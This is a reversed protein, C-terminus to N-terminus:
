EGVLVGRGVTFGEGFAETSESEALDNACACPAALDPQRRAVHEDIASDSGRRLHADVSRLPLPQDFAMADIRVDDDVVLRVRREVALVRLKVRRDRVQLALDLRM